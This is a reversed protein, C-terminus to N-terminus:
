PVNAHWPGRVFACCFAAVCLRYACVRGLCTLMGLVAATPFLGCVLALLRAKSACPPFRKPMRQFVTPFRQFVTPCVGLVWVIISPFDSCKLVNSFTPFNIRLWWNGISGCRGRKLRTDPSVVATHTEPTAIETLRASRVDPNRIPRGGALRHLVTSAWIALVQGDSLRPFGLFDERSARIRGGGLLPEWFGFM